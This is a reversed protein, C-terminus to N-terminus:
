GYIWRELFVYPTVLGCLQRFRIHTSLRDWAAHLGYVVRVSNGSVTAGEKYNGAPQGSAARGGAAKKGGCEVDVYRNRNETSGARDEDQLERYHEKAM